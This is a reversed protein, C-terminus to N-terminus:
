CAFRGRASLRWTVTSHIMIPAKERREEVVDVVGGGGGVSFFFFFLREYGGYSLAVIAGIPSRDIAGM